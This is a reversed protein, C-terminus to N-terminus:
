WAPSRLRPPGAGPRRPARRAKRGLPAATLACPPSGTSKDFRGAVRFILGREDRERGDPDLGEDVALRSAAPGPEEVPALVPLREEDGVPVDDRTTEIGAVGEDVQRSPGASGAGGRRACSAPPAALDGGSLEDLDDHVDVVFGTLVWLPELVGLVAREDVDDDDLELLVFLHDRADAVAADVGDGVELGRVPGLDHVVGVNRASKSM